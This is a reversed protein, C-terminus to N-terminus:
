PGQHGHLRRSGGSPRNIAGDEDHDITLDGDGGEDGADPDPEASDTPDPVTEMALMLALTRYLKLLKIM